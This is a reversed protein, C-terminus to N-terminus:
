GYEDTDKGIGYNSSLTSMNENYCFKIPFRGAEAMIKEIVDKLFDTLDCFKELYLTRM